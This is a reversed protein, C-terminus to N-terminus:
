WGGYMAKYQNIDKDKKQGEEREEGEVMVVVRKKFRIVSM